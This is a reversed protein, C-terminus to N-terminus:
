IITNLYWCLQHFIEADRLDRPSNPITFLGGTGDPDYERELFRDIVEDVVPECYRSDIMYSLGLSSIMGWFWQGTRDGMAPNDMIDEECKVALAVMMELVSCPGDLYESTNRLGLVFHSFTYRLYIGDNARNEDMPLSYRFEIDHLRMLLKRFSIYETHRDECVLECLWDFYENIIGDRTM